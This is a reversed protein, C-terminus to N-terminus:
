TSTRPVSELSGVPCVWKGPSCRMKPEIHVVLTAGSVITGDSLDAAKLATREAVASSIKPTTTPLDIPTTRSRKLIVGSRTTAAGVDGGSVPLGTYFSDYHIRVQV